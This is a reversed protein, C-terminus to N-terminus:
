NSPIRYWRCHASTPIGVFDLQQLARLCSPPMHGLTIAGNGDPTLIIFSETLIALLVFVFVDFNWILLFNYFVYISLVISIISTIVLLKGINDSLKDSHM